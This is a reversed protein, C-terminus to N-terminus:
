WYATAIAATNLQSSTLTPASFITWTARGRHPDGVLWRGTSCEYNYRMGAVMGTAGSVLECTAGTTLRVAAPNYRIPDRTTNRLELPLPKTLNLRLVHPGLIAGTPCAVWKATDSASFCPDLIYNGRFCRWADTRQDVASGEWCYGSAQATMKVGHALAGNITFPTYIVIRTPSAAVRASASAAVTGAALVLGATLLLRNANAGALRMSSVIDEVL